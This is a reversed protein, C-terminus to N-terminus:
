SLNPFNSECICAILVNQWGNTRKTIDIQLKPQKGNQSQNQYRWNKTM